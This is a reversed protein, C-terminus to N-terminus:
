RLQKGRDRIKESFEVQLFDNWKGSPGKNGLVHFKM